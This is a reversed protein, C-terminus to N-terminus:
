SEPTRQLISFGAPLWKQFVVQIEPNNLFNEPLM